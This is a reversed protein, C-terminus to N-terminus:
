VQQLDSINNFHNELERVLYETKKKGQLQKKKSDDISEDNINDRGKQLEEPLIKGRTIALITRNSEGRRGLAVYDSEKVGREVFQTNVPPAVFEHLYITKFDNLTACVHDAWMDGGNMILALAAQNRQIFPLRRM